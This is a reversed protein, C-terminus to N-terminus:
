CKRRYIGLYPKGGNPAASLLEYREHYQGECLLDQVEDYYWVWGQTDIWRCVFHDNGVYVVGMLMWTDGVSTDSLELVSEFLIEPSDNHVSLVLVLLPLRTHMDHVSRCTDIGGCSDCTFFRNPNFASRVLENVFVGQRKITLEALRSATLMCSVDVVCNDIGSQRTNYQVCRSCQITKVGLQTSSTTLIQVLQLIDMGARNVLGPVSQLTTYAWDRVDELSYSSSDVGM